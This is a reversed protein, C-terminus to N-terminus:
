GWPRLHARPREDAVEDLCKKFTSIVCTFGDFYAQLQSNFSHPPERQGARNLSICLHHRGGHGHRPSPGPSGLPDLPASLPFSTSGPAAPTDEWCGRSVLAKAGHRWNRDEEKASLLLRLTGRRNPATSAMDPHLGNRWVQLDHCGVNVWGQDTNIM